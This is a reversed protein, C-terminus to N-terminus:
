VVTMPRSGSLEFAIADRAARRAELAEGETFERLEVSPTGDEDVEVTLLYQM